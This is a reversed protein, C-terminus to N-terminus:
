IIWVLAKNNFHIECYQVFVICFYFTVCLLYGDMEGCIDNEKVTLTNWEQQLFISFYIFIDFLFPINTIRNDPSKQAKKSARLLHILVNESVFINFNRSVVSHDPVGLMKLGLVSDGGECLKASKRHFHCWAQQIGKYQKQFIGGWFWYTFIKCYLFGFCFDRTNNDQYM